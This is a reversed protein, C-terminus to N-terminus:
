VACLFLCHRRPAIRCEGRESIGRPSRRPRSRDVVARRPPALHQELEFQEQAEVGGGRELVLPEGQLDPQQFVAELRRRRHAGLGGALADERPAGGGADGVLGVALADLADQRTCTTAALSAAASGAIFTWSSRL